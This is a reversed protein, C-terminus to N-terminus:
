APLSFLTLANATTSETVEDIPLSLHSAIHAAIHPLYASENRRGRHPVPALYPSDTELLLRDLGIAPLTERLRSNKFTVIGNIGFYFDGVRRIEEVDQPTGGFSHFVAKVPKGQLVELAQRQGERRHIIVPLGLEIAWDVQREFAQMQEREYTADWYLDIGVEGVAKYEGKAAGQLLEEHIKQLDDQWGPGIETPHLGMAMTVNDPFQSALDRMPEITTLDVNPFMMRTVGAAIAREVAASPSPDFEPLYLHTHTDFLSM